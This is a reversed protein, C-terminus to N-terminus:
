RPASPSLVTEEYVDQVAQETAASIDAMPDAVAQVDVFAFDYEAVSAPNSFTEAASPAPENVPANNATTVTTLIPKATQAPKQAEEKKEEEKAPAQEEEEEETVIVVTEVPKAAAPKAAPKAAPRATQVPAAALFPTNTQQLASTPVTTNTVPETLPQAAPNIGQNSVAAVPAPTAATVSPVTQNGAVFNNYVAHAAFAVVVATVIGIVVSKM